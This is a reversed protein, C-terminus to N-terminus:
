AHDDGTGGSDAGRCMKEVGAGHGLEPRRECRLVVMYTWGAKL